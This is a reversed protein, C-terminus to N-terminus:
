EAVIARDSQEFKFNDFEAEEEAGAKLPAFGCPLACGEIAHKLRLLNCTTESLLGYMSLAIRHCASENDRDARRFGRLLCKLKKLDEQVCRNLGTIMQCCGGGGQLQPGLLCTVTHFNYYQVLDREFAKLMVYAERFNRLACQLYTNHEYCNNQSRFAAILDRDARDVKEQACEVRLDWLRFLERPVCIATASVVFVITSLLALKM